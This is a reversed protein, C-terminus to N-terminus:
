GYHMKHIYTCFFLCAIIHIICIILHFQNPHMGGYGLLKAATPITLDSDSCAFLFMLLLCWLLFSNILEFIYIGPVAATTKGQFFFFSCFILDVHKKLMM